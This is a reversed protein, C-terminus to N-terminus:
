TTCPEDPGRTALEGLTDRVVDHDGPLVFPEWGDSQLRAAPWAFLRDFAPSAYSVRGAGDCVVVADASHQVLARFREESRRVADEASRLLAVVQADPAVDARGERDTTM